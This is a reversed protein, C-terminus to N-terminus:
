RGGGDRDGVHSKVDLSVHYTESAVCVYASTEASGVRFQAYGGAGRDLSRIQGLGDMRFLHGPGPRAGAIGTEAVVAAVAEEITLFGTIGAGRCDGAGAAARGTGEADALRIAGPEVVM